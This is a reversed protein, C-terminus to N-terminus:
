FNRVSPRSSAEPRHRSGPNAGPVPPREGQAAPDQRNATGSHARAMGDRLLAPFAHPHGDTAAWGRSVRPARPGTSPPPERGARLEQVQRTQALSTLATPRTMSTQRPEERGVQRGCTSPIWTVRGKASALATSM